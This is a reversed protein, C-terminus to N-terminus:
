IIKKYRFYVFNCNNSFCANKKRWGTCHCFHFLLPFAQCFVSHIDALQNCRFTSQDNMDTNGACLLWIPQLLVASKNSWPTPTHPPLSCFIQSYTPPHYSPHTWCESHRRPHNGTIVSLCQSQIAPLRLYNPTCASSCVPNANTLISPILLRYVTLKNPSHSHQIWFCKRASQQTPQHIWLKLWRKHKQFTCFVDPPARAANGGVVLKERWGLVFLWCTGPFCICINDFYCGAKDIDKDKWKFKLYM